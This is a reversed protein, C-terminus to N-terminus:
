EHSGTYTKGEGDLLPLLIRVATGTDRCSDVQLGYPEGYYLRIRTHINKIGIGDERRQGLETFEPKDELKQRLQALEEGTMGIGNDSVSLLLDQGSREASIHICDGLNCYDLGHYLANEVLPQLILKLVSCRRLPDPIDMTLRYRHDFRIEQITTYHLTHRLEEELPVLESKTKLSYRFMAGMALSMDAISPVKELTAISNISELTNYLFHANIQSELSRMQSDLLILRNELENKIYLNKDDLMKQYANYLTGIENNYSFYPAASIDADEDAQLMLESLRTIPKTLYASLFFSILIMILGCAAGGAILAIRTIGFERYLQERDIRAQLTLTDLPLKEEYFLANHDDIDGSLADANTYIIEPGNKVTLEAIDPLPNVASLDFLEPSCDVFLVGLFERSYTDYLANCFSVTTTDQVFFAKKCPGYIFTRGQHALTNQYWSEESVDYGGRVSNNDGYGRGLVHGAPTFLYIGNIYDDNYIYGQLSYKLLENGDFVMDSQVPTEPDAYQKLYDTIATHGPGPLYMAEVLHGLTDITESVQNTCIAMLNGSVQETQQTVLDTYRSYTFLVTALLPLISVALFIYLFKKRLNM